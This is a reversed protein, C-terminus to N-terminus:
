KRLEQDTEVILVSPIHVVTIFIDVEIAWSRIIRVEQDCLLSKCSGM